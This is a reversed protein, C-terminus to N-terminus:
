KRTKKRTIKYQISAGSGEQAEMPISLARLEHPLLAERTDFEYIKKHQLSGHERAIRKRERLPLDPNAFAKVRVQTNWATDYQASLYESEKAPQCSTMRRADIDRFENQAHDFLRICQTQGLDIMTHPSVASTETKGTESFYEIDAVYENRMARLIGALAADNCESSTRRNIKCTKQAGFQRHWDLPPIRGIAGDQDPWDNMRIWGRSKFISGDLAEVIESYTELDRSYASPSTDFHSCYQRASIQDGELLATEIWRLRKLIRPKAIRKIIQEKTRFTM